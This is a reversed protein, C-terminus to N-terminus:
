ECCALLQAELFGTVREEYEAPHKSFARIHGVGPVVWMTARTGLADDFCEGFSQELKVDGAAVFLFSTGSARKMEGLLPAPPKEASLAQVSTYMVQATFNRVLSRESPLALLEGTCRRTAGDAVIARIEPCEASAGLLVEGGMSHGLAGIATINPQKKLFDVAARVDRTGSWGLRNTTGGSRGHGRLDIALVGYGRRVLMAAIGRMTQRSNGAGHVLIVVAGNIPEQYWGGIRVGDSTTMTVDSFGAPTAGVAARSPWVAAASMAVPFGVYLALAIALVTWGLTRAIRPLRRPSDTMTDGGEGV